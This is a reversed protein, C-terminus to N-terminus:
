RNIQFKNKLQGSFVSNGQYRMQTAKIREQQALDEPPREGFDKRIANRLFAKYDKYTKGHSLCYDYLEKTKVILQKESVNFSGIFEDIVEKPLNTLFSIHNEEKKHSVKYSTNGEPADPAGPKQEDSAGPETDSICEAGPANKAGPKPKWQSKDCLIYINKLQRKTKEDKERRVAIIRWEELKKIAKIVTHKSGFGHQKMILEISPFCEQERSAHRCLSNYVATANPKCLRAYGNLYEDDVSYKDKRRLDRVKFKKETNQM